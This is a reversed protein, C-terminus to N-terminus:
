EVGGNEILLEAANRIDRIEATSLAGRPHRKIEEQAARLPTAGYDDRANVDAGKELLFEAMETRGIYAARHLPTRGSYDRANVDAGHELLFETMEVNVGVATYHLPTSGDDDRVNVDAGEDIAKKIDDQSNIAGQLLLAGAKRKRAGTQIVVIVLIAVVILVAATVTAGAVIRRRRKAAKRSAKLYEYQLATPQPEKGEAQVLWAEAETLDRGRLLYGSNRDKSEWELARVQLRTHQKVWEFDTQIATLLDQFARSFEDQERFFLWNLAALEPTVRHPETEDILVPIIRKNNKAAHATELKCTDSEVSKESIIFIFTDAQEIAEFVEALWETSPPIDQWDIWTEIDNDEFAEHLLRAFAIDKRSYSIFVDSM